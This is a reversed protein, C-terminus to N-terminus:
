RWKGWLPVYGFCNKMLSDIVKLSFADKSKPIVLDKPIKNFFYGKCNINVDECSNVDFVDNKCFVKKM